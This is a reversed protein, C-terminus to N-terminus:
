PAAIDYCLLRSESRLYLRKQSIVPAAWCPYKLEPVQFRALEIPKDPSPRYLGLLGAEGLVFLKGDAMAASGRGYVQPPTLSKRWREDRDWKLQGTAFAVCRFRADPENRGSFAYLHGDHLIPTAWHIELVDERWVETVGQGDPRVKLLVSGIGYYASSLFILDDQVVPNMANVSENVRARFWFSFNIGGTKPDLSVLGQRMFCLLHRRGHITAPVPSAYSAQMAYDKWVVPPEGRWGVKPLGEWNDRGVKTWITKGTDPDFAAMGSNPQGGIMVILLDSELIPTSGVGFFARPIQFDAATDRQWILRGTLRDLCILVGEAGFTYCRTETLLPSARPGNNYGFPDVFNSPYAFRWSPSGDKASFTQVIEENAVRHHLVLQDDIISPASYGTGVKRNWIQTPGSAPWGEILGTESTKGNGSPGLFQPWDAASVSVPGLALQGCLTVLALQIAKM